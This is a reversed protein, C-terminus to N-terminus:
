RRDPAPAPIKGSLIDDRMKARAEMSRRIEPDPPYDLQVSVSSMSLSKTNGQNLYDHNEVGAVDINAIVPGSATMTVWMVHDMEGYGRGYLVGRKDMDKGALGSGAAGGATGLVYYDRGHRRVHLYQHWDGAFVTYKRKALNRCEFDLWKATTWVSPQHM